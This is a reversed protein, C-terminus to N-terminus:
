RVIPRRVNFTTTKKASPKISKGELVMATIIHVGRNLGKLSVSSGGDNNVIKGDLEIILRQRYSLPPSVAVQINVDGLTNDLWSGDVPSVIELNVQTKKAKSPKDSGPFQIQPTPPYKITQVKPVMIEEAGKHYQDSLVVNGDEDVWRYIVQKEEETKKEKPNQEGSGAPKTTEAANLEYNLGFFMLSTAFIIVISFFPKM